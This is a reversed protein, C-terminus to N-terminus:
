HWYYERNIQMCILLLEGGHAMTCSVTEPGALFEVQFAQDGALVSPTSLQVSRGGKDLYLKLDGGLINAVEGMADWVESAVLEVPQVGLLSAATRRVLSEPCHLAVLGSYDGEFGLLATVWNEQQPDPEEQCAVLTIDAMVGFVNHASEQMRLHLGDSCIGKIRPISSM